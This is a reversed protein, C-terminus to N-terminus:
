QTPQIPVSAYLPSWSAPLRAMWRIVWWVSWLMSMWATSAAHSQWLQIGTRLIRISMGRSIGCVAAGMGVYCAWAIAALPYEAIQPVAEAMYEPASTRWKEDLEEVELMKGDLLEDASCLDVVTKELKETFSNLFELDKEEM